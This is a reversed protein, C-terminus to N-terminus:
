YLKEFLFEISKSLKKNDRNLLLYSFKSKPNKKYRKSNLVAAMYELFDKPDMFVQCGASAKGIWKRLFGPKHINIGFWGSEVINDDNIFNKNKDRWVRVKNGYQVMATYGKHPGVMYSDEYFGEVLHACGSARFPNYTFHTGPDTTGKAIYLEDTINNYYFLIDNYEGKSM